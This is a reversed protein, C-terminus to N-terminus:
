WGNRKWPKVTNTTERSRDFGDLIGHRARSNAPDTLDAAHHSYGSARTRTAIPRGNLSEIGLKSAGRRIDSVRSSQFRQSLDQLDTRGTPHRLPEIALPQGSKSNAGHVRVCCPRPASPVRATPSCSPYGARVRGVRVRCSGDCDAGPIRNLTVVARRFGAGLRGRAYRPAAPLSGARCLPGGDCGVQTCRSLPAQSSM